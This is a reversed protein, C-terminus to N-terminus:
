AVHTQWPILILPVLLELGILIFYLSKPTGIDFLSYLRALGGLFVSAMM